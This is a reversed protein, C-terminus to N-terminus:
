PAGDVSAISGDAMQLRRDAMDALLLDHTATVVTVGRSAGIDRMIGGITQGTVSDLEGTPEDAFLVSPDAVLARAIAVRQQEGGSLEYPRHGSRGTLGVLDLAENARRRRDRWSMGAIHLPLEVNEFASLLPILGFSQFVFGIRDRRLGVLDREPMQSLERGEFWVKGSSPRDLGALLNLLTTKGSGSRGVLAVFEGPSISLTVENVARVASDGDGFERVVSEAALAATM